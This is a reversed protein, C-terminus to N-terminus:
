LGSDAIVTRAVLHRPVLVAERWERGALALRALVTLPYGEELGAAPQTPSGGAQAAAAVRGGSWALDETSRM